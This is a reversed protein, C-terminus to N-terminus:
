RSWFSQRMSRYADINPGRAWELSYFGHHVILNDGGHCDCWTAGGRWRRHLDIGILKWGMEFREDM